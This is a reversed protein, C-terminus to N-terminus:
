FGLGAVREGREGGSEGGGTRRASTKASAPQQERNAWWWCHRRLHIVADLGSSLARACVTAPTLVVPNAGATVVDVECEAGGAVHAVAVLGPGCIVRSHLSWGVVRHRPPVHRRPRRRGHVEGPSRGRIAGVEIIPMGHWAIANRLERRARSIRIAIAPSDRHPAGIPWHM